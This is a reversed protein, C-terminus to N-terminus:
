IHIIYVLIPYNQEFRSDEEHSGSAKLYDNTLKIRNYRKIVIDLIWIDPM